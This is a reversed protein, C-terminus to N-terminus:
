HLQPVVNSILVFGERALALQHFKFLSNLALVLFLFKIDTDISVLNTFNVCSINYISILISYLNKGFYGFDLSRM